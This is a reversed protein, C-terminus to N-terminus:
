HATWRHKNDCLAIARHCTIFFFGSTTYLLAWSGAVVLTGAQIVATVASRNLSRTAEPAASPETRRHCHPSPKREILGRIDIATTHKIPAATKKHRRVIEERLGADNILETEGRVSSLEECSGAFFWFCAAPVFTVLGSVGDNYNREGKILPHICIACHFYLHIIDKKWWEMM